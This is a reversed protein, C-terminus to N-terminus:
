SLSLDPWLKLCFGTTSTAAEKNQRLKFRRPILPAAFEATKKWCLGPLHRYAIEANYDRNIDIILSILIM